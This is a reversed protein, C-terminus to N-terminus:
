ALRGLTRLLPGPVGPLPAAVAPPLAVVVAAVTGVTPHAPLLNRSGTLAAPRRDPVRPRGHRQRDLGDRAM